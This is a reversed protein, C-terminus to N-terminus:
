FKGKERKSDTRCTGFVSSWSDHFSSAVFELSDKAEMLEGDEVERRRGISEIPYM